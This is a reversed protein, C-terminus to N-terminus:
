RKWLSKTMLSQTSWSHKLIIKNVTQTLKGCKDSKFIVLDGNKVEERIETLGAFEAQTLNSEPWGNKCENDHYDNAGVM